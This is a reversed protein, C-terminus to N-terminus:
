TESVVLARATEVARRAGEFLMFWVTRGCGLIWETDSDLFSEQRVIKAAVEDPVDRLFAPLGLSPALARLEEMLRTASGITMRPTRLPERFARPVYVARSGSLLRMHTRGYRAPSKEAFDVLSAFASAVHRNMASRGLDFDGGPPDVYPELAHLRLAANICEVDTLAEQVSAPAYSRKIGLYVGKPV